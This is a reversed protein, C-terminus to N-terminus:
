FTQGNKAKGGTLIGKTFVLYTGDSFNVQKTAGRNGNISIGGNGTIKIGGAQNINIPSVGTNINFESGISVKGSAINIGKVAVSDINGIKAL